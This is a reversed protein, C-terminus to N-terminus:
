DHTAAEAGLRPAEEGLSTVVRCLAHLRCTKCATTTPAVEAHGAAFEAALKEIRQSWAGILQAFNAQGELKTPRGHPRFISGRESEAVFECESANVRGYAVAVLADPKLLAYIPLQPNAPRAGRWDAAAIGTKYDILVRAGDALRDVRDVRVSFELGGHRAVTRGPELAEVEFPARLREADLWKGLVSQM